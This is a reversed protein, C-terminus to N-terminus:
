KGNRENARTIRDIIRQEKDTFRPDRPRDHVSDYSRPTSYSPASHQRSIERYGQASAVHASFLAALAFSAALMLKAILM